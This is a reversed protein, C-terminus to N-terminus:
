SFDGAIFHRVPRIWCACILLVGAIGFVWGVGLGRPRYELRLSRIESPVVVGLFAHNVTLTQLRASGSRATWGSPHTLSTAVLRSGGATVTLDVRGLTDSQAEVGRPLWREPGNPLVESEDSAIVVERADRIGAVSELTDNRDVLKVHIPIFARPLVHRRSRVRPTVDRSRDVSQHGAARPAPTLTLGVRLFSAMPHMRRIPSHYEYPQDMPHFGFSKDLVQAYTLSAMPNHYRIDELGYAAALSPYLIYRTGVIRYSQSSAQRHLDVMFPTDPYFLDLDGRPLMAVAWPGLDVISAVLLLMVKLSRWRVAAGIGVMAIAWLSAVFWSPAAILSITCAAVSAILFGTV